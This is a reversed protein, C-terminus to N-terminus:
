SQTARFSPHTPREGSYSTEYIGSVSPSSCQYSVHDPCSSSSTTKLLLTATALPWLSTLHM